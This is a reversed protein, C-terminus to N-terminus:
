PEKEALCRFAVVPNPHSAFDGRVRIWQDASYQPTPPPAIFSAETMQRQGPALHIAHGPFDLSWGPPLPEVALTGAAPQGGFNYIAIQLPVLEGPKFTYVHGESWPLDSVSARKADPWLIQLVLPSVTETSTTSPPPPVPFRNDLPLQKSAGHPLIVFQPASGIRPQLGAISHHGLYDHIALVELNKPLPNPATHQGRADWDVPNEAWLLVIDRDHGDPRAHFAVVHVGDGPQWHGLFQAGALFRGTAALAVYAPRPTLDRRLLGFQVGNPEHYHGLIFHFHQAAGSALSLAYEQILAEAKLREGPWPLDFDPPNNIHKMGRDAETIWLPKAAAAARAPM